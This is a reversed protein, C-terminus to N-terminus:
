TCRLFFGRLEEWIGPDEDTRCNQPPRLVGNAVVEQVQLVRDDDVAAAAALADGPRDTVKQSCTRWQWM